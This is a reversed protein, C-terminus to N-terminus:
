GGSILHLVSVNDGDNIVTSDYDDKRVLKNNVRIVLMPFTYNKLSLLESITLQRADFHEKRNNLLIRM